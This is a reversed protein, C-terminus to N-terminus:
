NEVRGQEAMVERIAVHYLYLSGQLALLPRRWWPSLPLRGVVVVVAAAFVNVAAEVVIVVVAIVAIMVFKVGLLLLM